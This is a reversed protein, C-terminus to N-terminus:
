EFLGEPIRIDARPVREWDFDTLLAEATKPAASPNIGALYGLRGLIEEPSLREQLSDLGVAGDRKSLRKGEATLLLPFHYFQPPTLGLLHYLYLQRPTSDQLDSGRVVETIGMAADDVVVALQYAFMGDSRRLLFDGCDRALNEEYRGMHGDTFGWVEESVRLRLALARTRRKEAIEAATLYRCTGVYVTQGDERHPASAAHLEARTCFCPYVLGRDELKELAAQYLATRRSQYYPGTGNEKGPGIDWDLGLWQLDRETQAGYKLPCRATDLDEVRLLIKGGKQRASLWALLACFLNGLHLRGSPSPAFRGLTEM